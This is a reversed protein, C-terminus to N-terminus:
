AERNTLYLEDEVKLFYCLKENKYHDLILFLLGEMINEFDNLEKGYFFFCDKAKGKFVEM